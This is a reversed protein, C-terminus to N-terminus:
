NPVQGQINVSCFQQLEQLSCADHWPKDYRVQKIRPFRFTHSTRYTDTIVLDAAVIEVVISQKPDIWFDPTAGGLEISSDTTRIKQRGDKSVNVKKWHPRLKECIENKERYSLGSATKCCSYFVGSDNKNDDKKFVGLLFQDIYSRTENYYAGIILM